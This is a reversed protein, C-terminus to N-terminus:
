SQSLSQVIWQLVRFSLYGCGILVFALGSILLGAFWRNRAITPQSLNLHHELLEMNRINSKWTADFLDGLGPVIGVLMELVINFAMVGLASKSAGLRAAELVIYSSLFLGAIDGGGPILGLLPDLGIRFTTGPIRIANDLLFSLRRLREMRAVRAATLSRHHSSLHRM